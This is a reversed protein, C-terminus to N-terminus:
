RCVSRTHEQRWSHLPCTVGGDASVSSTDDFSGQVDSQWVRILSTAADRDDGIQAVFDITDGTWHQSEDDPGYIIVEPASNHIAIGKESSCSLSITAAILIFSRM